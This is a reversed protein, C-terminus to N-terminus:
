PSRPQFGREDARGLGRNAGLVGIKLGLEVPQARPAAGLFSDESYGGRHEGRSVVHQFIPHLVAIKASLVERAAVAGLYDLAQDSSETIQTAINL